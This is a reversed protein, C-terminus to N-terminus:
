ALAALFEQVDDIQAGKALFEEVIQRDTRDVKAKMVDPNLCQFGEAGNTEVFRLHLDYMRKDANRVQTILEQAKM